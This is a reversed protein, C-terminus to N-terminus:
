INLVNRFQPSPGDFPRREQRKRFEEERANREEIRKKEEEERIGVRAVAQEETLPLWYISPTATTKRFLDDLLKAPSEPRKTLETTQM